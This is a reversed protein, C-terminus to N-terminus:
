KKTRKIKPVPRADEFAIEIEKEDLKVKYCAKANDVGLVIAVTGEASKWTIEDGQAFWARVGNLQIWAKLAENFLKEADVRRQLFKHCDAM